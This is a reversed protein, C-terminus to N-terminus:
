FSKICNNKKDSFHCFKCHSLNPKYKEKRIEKVTTRLSKKYNLIESQNFQKEIVKEPYRIFILETKFKTIEPFQKSVLYSYFVLQQSYDNVKTEIENEEIDNTKYDVIIIEDKNIILKDIIGYLYSDGDKSYIEYENYYVPYSKIKKYTSSTYYGYVLDTIEKIVKELQNNNNGLEHSVMNKIFPNLSDSGIEKEFISHIIRGKLDAHINSEKDEKYSFEYSNSIYKLVSRLKSYGLDYILQYKVPCQSFLAVKTASFIENKPFDVISDVLFNKDKYKSDNTIVLDDEKFSINRVLPITINLTKEEFKFDGETDFMFKLNDEFSHEEASIDIILGEIVYKIFSKKALKNNSISASIFLYDIARTIGVYLLRKIEADTKRHMVYNYLGVIPASIYPEFYNGGSPVKTIVGLEKDISIKKARIKDDLSAENCKYLFVAKFELGKAQHITMLKVKNEEASISAQGEDDLTEIAGDLYEVFDYLTKFSQASFSKSINILKELNAIEQSANTKSAIISWYYTDTLILRLLYTIDSKSAVSIHKNLAAVTENFKSNKYSYSNLKEFFSDGAELSIEFLEVDSFTFFPSRLIGVLATDNEQNLLFTLYNYIDYIVQRQYFGKGGIINYPINYKILSKELESFASRKRCLITVDNYILNNLENNSILSGIRRVVLESESLENNKEDTLLIEIEGLFSEDRACILEDYKVENLKINQEEFLNRFLSNTFAAIRPAVRFSHPLKLLSTESGTSSIENRTKDFIELEADRFMYISQKEDGVIFLNGRNLNELIPMFINYQIENTDQYEDIMIYDFKNQLSKLVETNKTIRETHLLIDEFDLYGKERKKDTYNNLLVQFVSILIKGLNALEMEANGSDDYERFFNLDEFLEELKDVEANLSERDERKLYGKTFIKGATTLITSALENLVTLTEFANGDNNLKELLQDIIKCKDCKENEFKVTNNIQATFSILEEIRNEFLSVFLQEFTNRFYNSIEKTPKSYLTENLLLISRRRNVFDRLQTSLNVKSGFFRILYKLDNIIPEESKLVNYLEEISQEILEESTRQDVPIFNADIGAQPSFEKLLDICFSHITSINASVLQRRLNELKSRRHSKKEGQIREIIESSIKNYLEGAAKDTFTIAVIKNLPINENVAIEVFRKSLVFTKGSGANATLSIHSSYNLAEKQHPTLKPM